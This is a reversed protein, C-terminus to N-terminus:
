EEINEPCANPPTVLCVGETGSNQGNKLLIFDTTIHQIDWEYKIHTM